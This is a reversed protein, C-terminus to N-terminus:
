NRAPPRDGEPMLNSLWPVIVPEAAALAAAIAPAGTPRETGARRAILDRVLLEALRAFSLGGVAEAPAEIVASNWVVAHDPFVQRISWTAGEAVVRAARRWRLSRHTMAAYLVHDLVVLDLPPGEGTVSARVRPLLVAGGTRATLHFVALEPRIARLGEIGRTLAAARAEAAIGAWRSDAAPAALEAPDLEGGEAPGFAAAEALWRARAAQVEVFAVEPVLAVRV